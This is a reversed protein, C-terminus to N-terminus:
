PRLIDDQAVHICSVHRQVHGLQIFCDRGVCWCGALGGLEGSTLGLPRSIQMSFLSLSLCPPGSVFSHNRHNCTLPFGKIGGVPCHTFSAAIARAALPCCSQSKTWGCHQEGKAPKLQSLCATCCLAKRVPVALLWHTEIKPTLSPSCFGHSWTEM